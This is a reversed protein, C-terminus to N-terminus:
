FLSNSCIATESVTFHELCTSISCPGGLRQLRKKLGKLGLSNSQRSPALAGQKEAGLRTKAQGFAELGRKVEHLAEPRM